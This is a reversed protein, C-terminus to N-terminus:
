NHHSLCGVRLQWALIALIFFGAEPCKKCGSCSCGFISKKLEDCTFHGDTVKPTPHISSTFFIKLAAFRSNKPTHIKFFDPFMNKPTKCYLFTTLLM